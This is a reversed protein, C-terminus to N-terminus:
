LGLLKRKAATFEEDTLLGRERLSALKELESVHDAAPLLVPSATNRKAEDLHSRIGDAFVKTHAKICNKIEAKNGSAFITLDGLM